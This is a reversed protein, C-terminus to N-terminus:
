LNIRFNFRIWRGPLTVDEIDEYQLDFVNNINLTSEIRWIQYHIQTDIITRNDYATPQEYRLYWSRSIGFPLNYQAGFTIQHKLYHTIYKYEDEDGNHELDIHAYGLEFRDVFSLLKIIEPYIEIRVNSTSTLVDPINVAEWYSSGVSLPHWDIVDQSNKYSHSITMAMASGYLQMGYEFSNILESNLNDNGLYMYDNAYIEYFSPLRFGHEFRHYINANNNLNYVFRYGPAVFWEYDSYYNGSIGFELNLKNLSFNHQLSLSYHDREIEKIIDNSNLERTYTFRPSSTGWNWNITSNFHIGIESNSYNNWGSFNKDYALEDRREFWHMNSEFKIQDFNWIIKSNFFKTSNNEYQNEYTNSMKNNIGNGRLLYGFSFNTLSKGDQLSYKYYFTRKTFETNPLYGTSHINSFSLNNYSKGIPINVAIKGNILGYDGYESALYSKSEKGSKTVINVVGSIAGTGYQRAAASQMIEIQKIDNINIPLDLDHHLTQQNSIKLGDILILTQEGTGGFTSVNASADSYGNRKVNLGIIYELVEAISNGPM